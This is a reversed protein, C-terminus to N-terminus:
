VAFMTRLDLFGEFRENSSPAPSSEMALEVVYCDAWFEAPMWVRSSTRHVRSVSEMCSPCCLPRPISSASSTIRLGLPISGLNHLFTRAIQM